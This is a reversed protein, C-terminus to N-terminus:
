PNVPELNVPNRQPRESRRRHHTGAARRFGVVRFWSGNFGIFGIFGHVRHAWSGSSGMFGIFGHVWSGMFGIFGHVKFGMFGIFGRFGSGQVKFRRPDYLIFM